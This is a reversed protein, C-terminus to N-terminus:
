LEISIVRGASVMLKSTFMCIIMTENPGGTSANGADFAVGAASANDSATCQLYCSSNTGLSSYGSLRRPENDLCLNLPLIFSNNFYDTRSQMHNSGMMSYQDGQSHTINMYAQLPSNPFAPTLVNNVSWSYRFARNGGYMKSPVQYLRGLRNTYQAIGTENVTRYNLPRTIAYAKNWCNVSLAFRVNKNNTSDSQFFTAYNEFIITLAGKSILEEINQEVVGSSFSLTTISASVQSLTFSANQAFTQAAVAKTTFTGPAQGQEGYLLCTVANDTFLRIRIAGLTSSDIISPECTGLFGLLNNLIFERGEFDGAQNDEDLSGTILGNTLQIGESGCNSLVSRYTIENELHDSVLHKVEQIDSAQAVSQNVIVGNISVEYRSFLNFIEPLFSHCTKLVNNGSDYTFARNTKAFFRIAFKRTDIFSNIPLNIELSGGGGNVVTSNSTLLEFQNQSFDTMQTTAYSLSEPYYSDLMEKYYYIIYIFKNRIM